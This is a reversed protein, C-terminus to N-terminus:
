FFKNILFPFDFVMLNKVSGFIPVNGYPAYTRSFVNNSSTGKELSYNWSKFLNNITNFLNETPMLGFDFICTEDVWEHPIQLKKLEEELDYGEEILRDIDLGNRKCEIRLKIDENSVM